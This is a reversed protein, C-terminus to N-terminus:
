EKKFKDKLFDVAAAKGEVATNSIAADYKRLLARTEEATKHIEYMSYGCIGMAVVIEIIWAILHKWVNERIM